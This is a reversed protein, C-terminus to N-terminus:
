YLDNFEKELNDIKEMVMDITHTAHRQEERIFTDNPKLISRDENKNTVIQPRVNPPKIHSIDNPDLRFSVNSRNIRNTRERLPTQNQNISSHFDAVKEYTQDIKHVRKAMDAKVDLERKLDMLLVDKRDLETLVCDLKGNYDNYKQISGIIQQIDLTSSVRLRQNEERLTRLENNLTNTDLKRISLTNELHQITEKLRKNEKAQDSQDTQKSQMIQIRQICNRVQIFIYITLNCEMELQGKIHTQQAMEKSKQDLADNLQTANAESQKIKDSYIYNTEKLKSLELSM